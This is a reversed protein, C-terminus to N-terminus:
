FTSGLGASLVKTPTFHRNTTFPDFLTGMQKFIRRIANEKRESKQTASPPSSVDKLKTTGLAKKKM